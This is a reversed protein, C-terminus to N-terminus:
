EAKPAKPAPAAKAAVLAAVEKQLDRVAKRLDYVTKYLGEMDKNTPIPLSSLNREVVKNSATLYLFYKDTFDAFAKSFEATAFLDEMAKESTNYWLDYFERFTSVKQGEKMMNKYTETLTQVNANNSKTMIASLKGASFMMKYYADMAAQQENAAEMNIGLNMMKVVKGFTAEYRDGIESFFKIAADADGNLVNKVLEEDLQMWPRMMNQYFKVCMETLEQPQKFLEAVDANPIANQIFSTMMKNYNEQLNKAFDEPNMVGKYFDFLQNYMELGPVKVEFLKAYDDMMPFMETFKKMYEEYSPMEGYMEKAKAQAEEYMEKVKAQMEEYMKKANEQADGYMAKMADMNPFMAKQMEEFDPTAMKKMNETWTEMLKQQEKIPDFM